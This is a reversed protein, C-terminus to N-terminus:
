NHNSIYRQKLLDIHEITLKVGKNRKYDDKMLENRYATGMIIKVTEFHNEDGSVRIMKGNRKEYVPNPWKNYPHKRSAEYERIMLHKSHYLRSQEKILEFLLHFDDIKMRLVIDETMIRLYIWIEYLTPDKSGAIFSAIYNYLRREFKDDEKYKYFIQKHLHSSIDVQRLPSYQPVKLKRSPSNKSKKQYTM